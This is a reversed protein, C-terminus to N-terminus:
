VKLCAPLPGGPGIGVTGRGGGFNGTEGTKQTYREFVKRADDKIGDGRDRLSVKIDVSSPTRGKAPSKLGCAEPRIASAVGLSKLWEDRRDALSGSDRERRMPAACMVVPPAPAGTAEAAEEATKEATKEVDEDVVQGPLGASVPSDLLGGLGKGASPSGAIPAPAPVATLMSASPAAATISPPDIEEEELDSVLAAALRLGLPMSADVTPAANWSELTASLHQLRKAPPRSDGRVFAETLPASDVGASAESRPDQSKPPSSSRAASRLPPGSEPQAWVPEGM